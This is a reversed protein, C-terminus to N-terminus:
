YSTRLRQTCRKTPHAREMGSREAPRPNRAPCRRSHSRVCQTRANDGAARYLHRWHIGTAAIGTGYRAAAPPPHHNQHRHKIAYTLKISISDEDNRCPKLRLGPPCSYTRRTLTLRYSQKNHKHTNPKRHCFEHCQQSNKDTLAM